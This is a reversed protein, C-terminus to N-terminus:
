KESFYGDRARVKPPDLGSNDNRVVVHLTRWEPIGDVPDPQFALLYGHLLDQAIHEFVARIQTPDNLAFSLGGTAAAVSQLQDMLDHDKLADGHAITYVAVNETKARRVVADPTLASSNDAGDTFVVIAKKGPRGSLDHTVRVLADHLGTNGSARTRLVARKAQEKSKTFPQLEYVSQNFSYVAVTDVPRLDDILKLASNKLAPLSAFMSGTTDLVLAVSVGATRNEFTGFPIPKGNDLLKFDNRDLDDLYHGGEGTVTAYVEVLRASVRFFAETPVPPVASPATGAVAAVPTEPPAPAGEAPKVRALTAAVEEFTMFGGSFHSSPAEHFTLFSSGSFVSSSRPDGLFTHKAALQPDELVLLTDPHLLAAYVQGTLAALTKDDSAGALPPVRQMQKLRDFSARREGSLRLLKAPVAEDADEAGGTMERLAALSQASYDPASLASCVRRFARAGDAASLSGARTGLEILKVLSHWEGLVTNRLDRPRASVSKEFAALAEFEASGLCPLKEFYPFLPRWAGYRSALLRASAEDLPAKRAQELGAIPILSELAPVGILIDEDPGSAGTWAARGGPFRVRGDADLPLEQFLTKRWAVYRPSSLSQLDDSDRYWKYFQGAVDATRTFFRQHALDARSLAFYFAALKGQDKALLAGFFAKPDRPSAGALREWGAEAPPGGPVAAKDDSVTFSEGYLRLSDAHRNVLVRLGVGSILASAAAPSMSALGAYAAAYRPNRIFMEAFGGPPLGGTLARWARAELVSAQASHIEFHFSAGSALVKAAELEDIGLAAPILQRPSDAPLESIEVIDAAGRHSDKWGFLKLVTATKAGPLADPSLNIRGTRNEALRSLEVAAALYAEIGEAFGPDDANAPPEAPAAIARCYELFFDSPTPTRKLHAVSALAQLGGPVVVDTAGEPSRDLSVGAPLIGAAEAAEAAASAQLAKIRSRVAAAEEARSDLELYRRLHAIASSYDEGDALILGLVYEARPLTHKKDLAIAKRAAAEAGDVNLHARIEALNLYLGPLTGQIDARTGALATKEAVDWNGADVQLQILPSYARLYRPALEIAREFAARAEAPRKENQLARGLEAWVPGSKPYQALIARLHGEAEPWKKAESATLSRNWLAAAGSPVVTSEGRLVINPLNNSKEITALDIVDSEYGALVARWVCEGDVELFLSESWRVDGLKNTSAVRVPNRGGCVREIGAPKPLPSGDEMVVKGALDYTSQGQLHPALAFLVAIIGEKAGREFRSM